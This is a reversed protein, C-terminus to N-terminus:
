STLELEGRAMTERFCQHTFEEMLIAETKYAEYVVEAWEHVESSDTDVFVRLQRGDPECVGIEVRDDFIALVFPLDDHLQITLYGSVCAEMCKEPYEDLSNKAAQPLILDETAMGDVIRRKIEDLYLPAIGDIDFGHLTETEQVLAIFRAVPSYPDGRKASTVTADVFAQADIEVPADGVADLVPALQLASKAEQKFTTLADTLLRGADTLRFCGDVREIVGKEELTRTHRHCTARSIGLRDSEDYWDYGCQIM